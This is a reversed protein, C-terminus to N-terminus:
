SVRGIIAPPFQENTVNAESVTSPFALSTLAPITHGGVKPSAGGAAVVFGTPLGGVGASIQSAVRALSITTNDAAVWVDLMQGATVDINPDGIIRWGTGPSAVSGSTWLRSRNGASADGTDYVGIALNGSSTGIFVSMDRLKGTEPVIVRWGRPTQSALTGAQSLLWPSFGIPAVLRPWSNNFTIDDLSRATVTQAIQDGVVVTRAGSGEQARTITFTDTSVATVRVIEANASTPQARAPWITANFSAAPFKTGEGSAVVLSTGSSAPSPATAVTSVAFNKRADPM